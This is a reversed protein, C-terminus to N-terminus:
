DDHIPFNAVLQLWDLRRIFTAVFHITVIQNFASKNIKRRSYHIEMAADCCVPALWASRREGSVKLRRRPGHHKKVLVAVQPGILIFQAALNLPKAVKDGFCQIRRGRCSRWRRYQGFGFPDSVFHGELRAEVRRTPARADDVCAISIRCARRRVRLADLRAAGHPYM